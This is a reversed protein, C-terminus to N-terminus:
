CFGPLELTKAKKIGVPRYQPLMPQLGLRTNDGEHDNGNSVRALDPVSLSIAAWL